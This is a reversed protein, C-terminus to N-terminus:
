SLLALKLIMLLSHTDGPAQEQVALRSGHHIVRGQGAAPALRCASRKIHHVLYRPALVVQGCLLGPESPPQAGVQVIAPSIPVSRAAALVAAEDAGYETAAAALSADMLAIWDVIEQAM